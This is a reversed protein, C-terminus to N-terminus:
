RRHNLLLLITLLSIAVAVISFIIYGISLIHAIFFYITWAITSLITITVLVWALTYGNKNDKTILLICSVLLLISTLTAISNNTFFRSQSFVKTPVLYHFHRFIKLICDVSLLTFLKYKDSWDM